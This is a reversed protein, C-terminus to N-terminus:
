PMYLINIIYLISSVVDYCILQFCCPFPYLLDMSILLRCVGPYFPIWSIPHLGLCICHTMSWFVLLVFLFVWFLILCNLSRPVDTSHIMIKEHHNLCQSPVYKLTFSFSIWTFLWLHNKVLSGQCCYVCARVFSFLNLTSIQQAFSAVKM